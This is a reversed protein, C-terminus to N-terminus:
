KYCKGFGQFYTCYNLFKINIEQNSLALQVTVSEQQITIEEKNKSPFGAPTLICIPENQEKKLLESLLHSSTFGGTFETKIHM